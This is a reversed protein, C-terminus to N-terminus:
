SMLTECRSQTEAQLQLSWATVRYFVHCTLLGRFGLYGAAYIRSTVGGFLLDRGPCPSGAARLAICRSADRTPQSRITPRSGMAALLM